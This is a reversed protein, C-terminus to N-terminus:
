TSIRGIRTLHLFVIFIIFIILVLILKIKQLRDSKSNTERFDKPPLLTPLKMYEGSNESKSTSKPYKEEIEGNPLLSM